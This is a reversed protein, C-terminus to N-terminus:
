FMGANNMIWGLVLIQPVTFFPLCMTLKWSKTVERLIMIETYDTSVGAMLFTFGNGPANARTLLEAGIPASGESCVEIITTLLLTLFLGMIGPGLYAVLMETPVFVRLASALIIGLFLWRLLVRSEKLGSLTAKLFGRMSIDATKFHEKMHAKLDYDEAMEFKHPNDPLWGRKICFMFLAGTIIAILMSAAIFVLTWPLGILAILILTLSFSNWPSAILFTMVQGISVGREYLKAGVMLIGHSCLDLLVGALAARFLSGYSDGSGLLAQFWERPTHQMLGMAIIGFLIGWWVTKLFDIIAHALPTAYPIDAGSLHLGIASFMVIMCGAMLFDLQGKEGHCSHEDENKKDEPECCSSSM